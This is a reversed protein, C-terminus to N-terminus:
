CSSSCRRLSRRGPGVPSRHWRSTGCPESLSRTSMRSDENVIHHAEPDAHERVDIRAAFVRVTSSARRDRRGPRRSRGSGGRRRSARTCADRTGARGQASYSGRRRRATGGAQRRAGLEAEARVDANREPSAVPAIQPSGPRSPVRLERLSVSPSTPLGQDGEGSQDHELELALHAAPRRAKASRRAM